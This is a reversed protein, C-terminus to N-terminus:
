MKVLFATKRSAYGLKDLTYTRKTVFLVTPTPALGWLYSLTLITNKVFELIKLINYNKYVKYKHILIYFM